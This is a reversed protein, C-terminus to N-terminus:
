EEEEKNNDDGLPEKNSVEDRNFNEFEQELFNDKPLIYSHKFSSEQCRWLHKEYFRLDNKKLFTWFSRVYTYQRTCASIQPEFM